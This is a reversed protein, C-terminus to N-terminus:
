IIMREPDYSMGFRILREILEPIQHTLWLRAGDNVHFTTAIAPFPIKWGPASLESEFDLWCISSPM